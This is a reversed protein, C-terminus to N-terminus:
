RSVRRDLRDAAAELRKAMERYLWIQIDTGERPDDGIYSVFGSIAKAIVTEVLDLHFARPLRETQTSMKYARRNFARRQGMAGRRDFRKLCM